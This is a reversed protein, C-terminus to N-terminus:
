DLWCHQQGEQASPLREMGPAPSPKPEEDAGIGSSDEHFWHAANRARPPRFKSSVGKRAMQSTVCDQSRTQLCQRAEAWGSAWGSSSVVASPLFSISSIAAIPTGIKTKVPPSRHLALVDELQDAVGGALAHV